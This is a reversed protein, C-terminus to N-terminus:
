RGQVTILIHPCVLQCVNSIFYNNYHYINDKLILLFFSFFYKNSNPPVPQISDVRMQHFVQIQSSYPISYGSVDEIDTLDLHDFLKCCNCILCLYILKKAEFLYQKKLEMNKMLKM